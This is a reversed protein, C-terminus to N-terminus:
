SMMNPFMLYINGKKNIFLKKQNKTVLALDERFNEAEEFQCEIIENGLKDIYGLQDNSNVQALGCYFPFFYNYKKPIKNSM